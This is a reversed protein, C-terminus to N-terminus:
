NEKLNSIQSQFSSRIKEFLDIIFDLVYKVVEEGLVSGDTEFSITLKDFNTMAGVRVQEVEVAVNQIPNFVADVLINQPNTNGVMDLKEVSLYGVGKSIEVQIKISGDKDLSCLYLDKNIIRIRSDEKFDSAFVEGPGKKELTLTLKQDDTLIETRLLKLNLIVELADEKVGPLGQYEHTIDNIQVGTVACGPVSSLFVRRVSNGISHGFGPLLPQIELSFQKDSSQKLQCQINPHLNQNSLSM